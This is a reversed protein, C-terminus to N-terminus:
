RANLAAFHGSYFSLMVALVLTAAAAFCLSSVARALRDLRRELVERRRAAARELAEELAGIPEARGIMELSETGLAGTPALVETLALGAELRAAAATLRARPTAFPVARTALRHAEVISVGAGYLTHMASLYPLESADRIVAGLVPWGRLDVGPDRRARRLRLTVFAGFIAVGALTAITVTALRSGGPVVTSLLLLAFGVLFTPYVARGLMRVARERRARLAAAALRLGRPLRGACETAALLDLDHVRLGLRLERLAGVIGASPNGTLGAATLATSAQLGADLASALDDLRDAARGVTAIWSPLSM